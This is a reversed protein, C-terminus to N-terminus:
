EKSNKEEEKVPPMPKRFRNQIFVEHGDPFTFILDNFRGRMRIRLNDRDTDSIHFSQISQVVMQKRERDGETLRYVGSRDIKIQMERGENDAIDYNGNIKQNVSIEYGKEDKISKKGGLSFKFTMTYEKGKDNSFYTKNFGNSRSKVWNGNATELSYNNQLDPAVSVFNNNEDYIEFGGSRNNELMLYDSKSFSSLAEDSFVNLWLVTSGLYEGFIQNYVLELLQHEGVRYFLDENESHVSDKGIVEFRDSLPAANATLFISSIFLILFCLYNLAKM